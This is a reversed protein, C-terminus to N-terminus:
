FAKARISCEVRFVVEGVFKSDLLAIRDIPGNIVDRLM